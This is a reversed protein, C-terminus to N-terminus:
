YRVFLLWFYKKCNCLEMILKNLSQAFLLKDKKKEKLVSSIKHKEGLYCKEAAPALM